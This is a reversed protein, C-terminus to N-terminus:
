LRRWQSHYTMSFTDTLHVRIASLELATAEVIASHSIM